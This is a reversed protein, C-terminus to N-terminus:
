ECIVVVRRRLRILKALTEFFAAIEEVDDPDRLEIITRAALPVKTPFLTPVKTTPARNSAPEESDEPSQHREKAGHDCSGAEARPCARCLDGTCFPCSPGPCTLTV